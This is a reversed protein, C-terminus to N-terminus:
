KDGRLRRRIDAEIWEADGRGEAERVKEIEDKAKQGIAGEKRARAKSVAYVIPAVIAICVFCVLYWATKLWERLRGM